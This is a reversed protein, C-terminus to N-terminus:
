HARDDALLRIPNNESDVVIPMANCAVTKLTNENISSSLKLEDEISPANYWKTPEVLARLYELEQNDIELAKVFNCVYM